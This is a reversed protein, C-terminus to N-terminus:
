MRSAAKLQLQMAHLPSSYDRGAENVDTGKDCLVNLIKRSRAAMTQAGATCNLEYSAISAAPLARMDDSELM